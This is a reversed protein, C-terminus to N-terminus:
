PLGRRRGAALRISRPGSAECPRAFCRRRCGGFGNGVRCGAWPWLALTAVGADVASSVRASAARRARANIGCTRFFSLLVPFIRCPVPVPPSSRASSRFPQIHLGVRNNMAVCQRDGIVRHGSRWFRGLKKIDLHLLAGPVPSSGISRAPRSWSRWDICNQASSRAIPGVGEATSWWRSRLPRTRPMRAAIHRSSRDLLGATLWNRTAIAFDIDATGRAIAIGHAYTLLIDRSTAGVLLTPMDGTQAQVARVVDAM